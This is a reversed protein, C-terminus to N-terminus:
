SRGTATTPGVDDPQPGVEPRRWGRDDDGRDDYDHWHHHHHRAAFVLAAIAIIGLVIGSHSIAFSILAIFGILALPGFFFFPMRHGFRGGGRFRGHMGRGHGYGCHEDRDDAAEPEASDVPFDAGVGVNIKSM